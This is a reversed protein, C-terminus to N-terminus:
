FGGAAWLLSKVSYSSLSSPFSSWTSFRYLCSGGTRHPHPIQECTWSSQSALFARLAWWLQVVDHPFDTPPPHPHAPPAEGGLEAWWWRHQALPLESRKFIGLHQPTQSAAGPLPVTSHTQMSNAGLIFLFIPWVAQLIDQWRENHYKAVCQHKTACCIDSSMDYVSCHSEPIDSIPKKWVAADQGAMPGSAPLASHLLVLALLAPQLACNQSWTLTIHQVGCAHLCAPWTTCHSPHAAASSQLQAAIPGEAGMRGGITM